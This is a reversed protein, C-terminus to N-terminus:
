GMSERSRVKKRTRKKHPYTYFTDFQVQHKKGVVVALKPLSKSVEYEQVRKSFPEVDEIKLIDVDYDDAARSVENRFGSASSVWALAHVYGGEDDRSFRNTPRFRVHVFGIWVKKRSDM